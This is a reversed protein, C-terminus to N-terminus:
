RGCSARPRRSSTREPVTDASGATSPLVVCMLVLLILGMGGGLGLLGLWGSRSRAWHGERAVKRLLQGQAVALGVLVGPPAVARFSFQQNPPQAAFSRQAHQFAYVIRIIMSICSSYILAQETSPGRLGAAKLQNTPLHTLGYLSGVFASSSCIMWKAQKAIQQPTASSSHYAEMIGNLSLLPVYFSLYAELTSPATTRLYRRPLLLPLVAPLLPPLFNPLIILLYSSLQTVFRLLAPTTAEPGHTSFHLFLTEELPQFVIRAILSGVAPDTDFAM